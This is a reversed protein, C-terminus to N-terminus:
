GATEEPNAPADQGEKAAEEFLYQKIRSRPEKKKNGQADLEPPFIEEIPNATVAQFFKGETESVDFEARAKIEDMTKLGTAAIFQALRPDNIAKTTKQKETSLDTVIIINEFVHRGKNEDEDQCVADIKIIQNTSDESSVPEIVPKNAVVFLHKGPTILPFSRKESLSEPDDATISILGMKAEGIMNEDEWEAPPTPDNRQLLHSGGRSTIHDLSNTEKFCMSMILRFSVHHRQIGDM